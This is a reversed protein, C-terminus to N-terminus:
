RSVTIGMLYRQLVELSQVAVNMAGLGSLTEVWYLSKEQLFRLILNVDITYPPQLHQLHFQWFICAYALAPDIAEQFHQPPLSNNPLYSSKIKCTNFHLKSNMLHLSARLLTHHADRINVRFREPCRSEPSANSWNTTSTDDSGGLLFDVFSQHHFRIVNGGGVVTNLSNHISEVLGIETNLLLAWDRPTLHIQATIVASALKVFLRCRRDDPFSTEPVQRYLAYVDGVPLVGSQVTRLRNVPDGKIYNLATVAWIFIGSARNALDNVVDSGPWDSGLWSDKAINRLEDQIYLRIDSTSEETVKSGTLIELPVHLISDFADRIDSEVRSTVILKFKSPLLQSWERISELLGKRDRNTSGDLTGCEDLADIIFVPFQDTPFKM